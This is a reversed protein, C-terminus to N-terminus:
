RHRSCRPRGGRAARLPAGGLDPGPVAVYPVDRQSALETLARGARRDAGAGEICRAATTPRARARAGVDAARAHRRARRRPRVAVLHALHQEVSVPPSTARLDLDRAPRLDRRPGHRRGLLRDPHARGQRAPRAHARGPAPAARVRRRRAVCRASRRGPWSRGFPTSYDGALLDGVVVRPGCARASCSSRRSASASRRGSRRSPETPPVDGTTRTRSSSGSGRRRTARPRRRSSSGAPLPRREVPGRPVM